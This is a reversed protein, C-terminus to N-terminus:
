SHHTLDHPCRGGVGRFFDSLGLWHARLAVRGASRKEADRGALSKLVSRVLRFVAYLAISAKQLPTAFRFFLRLRNRHYYYQTAPSKRGTTAGEKHLVRSELAVTLLFGARACRRSFEGDEFYLFFSEDLLGVRELVPVPILMSAGSLADVRMGDRLVSEPYGRSRGTWANLRTGVQQYAGDPYLLLSGALGGTRRSERLLAALAGPEATADNNLLWIYGPREEPLQELVHRIGLNCGGSYGLNETSEVLHFEGPCAALRTKLRAVSDDPSANDVVIVQVDIGLRVDGQSLERRLHCLSDLCALTDDAGGYNLLIVAVASREVDVTGSGSL